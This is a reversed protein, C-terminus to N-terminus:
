KKKFNGVLVSARTKTLLLMVPYLIILTLIGIAFQIKIDNEMGILNELILITLQNLCLYM